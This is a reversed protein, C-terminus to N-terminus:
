TLIAHWHSSWEFFTFENNKWLTWELEVAPKVGNKGLTDWHGALCNKLLSKFEVLLIRVKETSQFSEKFSRTGAVHAGCKVWRHFLSLIALNLLFLFHHRRTRGKDKKADGKERNDVWRGAQAVQRQDEASEALVSRQKPTQGQVLKFLAFSDMTGFDWVLLKTLDWSSTNVGLLWGRLMTKSTEITAWVCSSYDETLKREIHACACAHREIEVKAIRFCSSM